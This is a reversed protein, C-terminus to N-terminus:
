VRRLRVLLGVAATGFFLGAVSPEPVSIATVTLVPRSSSTAFNESNTTYVIASDAPLALLSVVNGATADAVFSSALGLNYTNNGSTGGPFSFTGLSQDSGGRFGSLTAYTVGDTTPLNPTGTGEQWSDNQMWTLTFAGSAAPSNFIPNNPSASTLQLTVSQITWQGAGFASDFSSKAAALNFQLLSDFEGKPLGAADVLLAGAAGYNSTSNASSVFTDQTANLTFTTASALRALAAVACTLCLLFRAAPM